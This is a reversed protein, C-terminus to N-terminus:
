RETMDPAPPAPAPEPSGAAAHPLDVRFCTGRGPESEVDITGGHAMVIARVLCLGLGTGPEHATGAARYFRTFIHPLEAAAIGVGTDEVALLVRGGRVGCSVRIRGGAPTYKVANDLLNSLMRQLVSRDGRVGADSEGAAVDVRLNKDEVVLEFVEVAALVLDRMAVVEAAPLPAAELRAIQLMIGISRSLRDCEEIVLAGTDQVEAPPCQADLLGEVHGRIRTIPTKLEHAIDDSVDQLEQVLVAIRERMTNFTNALERLEDHEATLPVRAALNGGGIAIAALRLAEVRALARSIVRGSLLTGLVLSLALGAALLLRQTKLERDVDALTLAIHLRLDDRGWAYLARFRPARRGTTQFVRAGNTLGAPPPALLAAYAGEDPMSSALVGGTAHELRLFLRETGHHHTLREFEHQLIRPKRRTALDLLREGEALLVRDTRDLASRRDWGDLLIFVLVLGGAFALGYTLMLRFRLSHFRKHM